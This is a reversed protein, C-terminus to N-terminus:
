EGHQLKLLAGSKADLRLVACGGVMDPASLTGSVIWSSSDKFEVSYPKDDASSLGYHRMIYVEAIAVATASDPIALASKPLNDLERHCQAHEVTNDNPQHLTFRDEVSKNERDGCGNVLLATCLLALQHTKMTYRNIFQSSRSTRAVVPHDHLRFWGARNREKKVTM